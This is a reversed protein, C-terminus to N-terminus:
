YATRIEEKMKQLNRVYYDAKEQHYMINKKYIKKQKIKYSVSQLLSTGQNERSIHGEQNSHKRQEKIEIKLNALQDEFGELNELATAAIRM